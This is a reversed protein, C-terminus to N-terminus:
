LCIGRPITNPYCGPTFTPACDDDIVSATGDDDRGGVVQSLTEDDLRRLTEKSLSLQQVKRQM